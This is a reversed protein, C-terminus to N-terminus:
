GMKVRFRLTLVAIVIISSFYEETFSEFFLAIFFEFVSNRRFHGFETLFQSDFIYLFTKNGVFYVLFAESRFNLFSCWFLGGLSKELVIFVTSFSMEVEQLRLNAIFPSDQERFGRRSRWLLPFAKMVVFDTFVWLVLFTWFILICFLFLLKPLFSRLFIDHSKDWGIFVRSWVLLTLSNFPWFFSKKM